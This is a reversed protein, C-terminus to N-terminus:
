WICSAVVFVRCNAALVMGGLSCGAAMSGVDQGVGDEGRIMEGCGSWESCRCFGQM